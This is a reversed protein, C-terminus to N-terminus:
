GTVNRGVIGVGVEASEDIERQCQPCSVESGPVHPIGNLNSRGGRGVAQRVATNYPRSTAAAEAPTTHDAAVLEGVLGPRLDRRQQWGLV